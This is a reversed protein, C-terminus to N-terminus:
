RATVDASLVIPRNAPPDTATLTWADPTQRASESDCFPTLGIVCTYRALTLTIRDDTESRVTARDLRDGGKAKVEASLSRGPGRSLSIELAVGSKPAKTVVTEIQVTDGPRVRVRSHYSGQESASPDFIRVGQRAKVQGAAATGGNPQATPSATKGTGPDASRGCGSAAAALLCVVAAARLGTRRQL